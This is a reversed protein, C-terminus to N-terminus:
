SDEKASLLEHAVVYELPTGSGFRHNLMDLGMVSFM